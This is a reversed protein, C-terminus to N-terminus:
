SIGYTESGTTLEKVKEGYFGRRIRPYFLAEIFLYRFGGDNSDFLPEAFIGRPSDELKEDAVVLGPLTPSFRLPREPFDRMDNRSNGWEDFVDPPGAMRDFFEQRSEGPLQTWSSGSESSRGEVFGRQSGRYGEMAFITIANTLIAGGALVKLAFNVIVAGSAARAAQKRAQAFRWAKGRMEEKTMNRHEPDPSFLVFDRDSLSTDGRM